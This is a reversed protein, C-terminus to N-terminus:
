WPHVRGEFTLFRGSNTLDLQDVVGRLGRVSEEVSTPASSGGMDTRVWGPHVITSAVGKYRWGSEEDRYRDNLLCKSYGYDDSPTRGSGFRKRSGLQSSLLMIKRQSSRLVAPMLAAAVNFPADVNVAVIEARSEAHKIGANHILIDISTNSAEFATALNVIQAAYTVDCIHVSTGPLFTDKSVPQRITVHTKWGAAAYQRALELGIGRSAGVILVSGLQTM